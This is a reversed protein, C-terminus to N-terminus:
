QVQCLNKSELHFEGVKWLYAFGHENLKTDSYILMAQSMKSSFNVWNRVIKTWM